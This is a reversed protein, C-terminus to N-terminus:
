APIKQSIGARYNQFKVWVESGDRIEVELEDLGRPAPSKPDNIKGDLAFTSNHCPCFYAGRGANYDVFCGAHPCVVNFARPKGEKERRLYVAGIATEPSRNWVDVRSAIIAFKRPMGDDPLASLNAVRVLQGGSKAKRRVPDFWVALGAALPILTIVAGIVNAALKKLFGRRDPCCCQEPKANVM